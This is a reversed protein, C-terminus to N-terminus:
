WSRLSRGDVRTKKRLAEVFKTLAAVHSEELQNVRAQKVLPYHLSKPEMCGQYEIM